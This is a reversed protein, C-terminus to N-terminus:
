AHSDKGEPIRFRIDVVTGGQSYIHLEGQLQHLVLNRVLKLGLSQTRDIDIDESIGKGDDRVQLRIGSDADTEM